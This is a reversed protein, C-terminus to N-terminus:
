WGRGTSTEQRDAEQLSSKKALRAIINKVMRTQEQGSGSSDESNSSTGSDEMVDAHDGSPSIHRSHGAVVDDIEVAPAVTPGGPSCTYLAGPPLRDKKKPQQDGTNGTPSYRMASLKKLLQQHIGSVVNERDEEPLKALM